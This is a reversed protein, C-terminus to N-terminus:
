QQPRPLVPDGAPLPRCLSSGSRMGSKKMKETPEAPCRNIRYTHPVDNEFRTSSKQKVLNKQRLSVTTKQRDSIDAAHFNARHMDSVLKQM